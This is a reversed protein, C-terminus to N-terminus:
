RVPEGRVIPTVKVTEGADQSRDCRFTVRNDGRRLTPVTGGSGDGEVWTGLARHQTLNQPTDLIIEVCGWGVANSGNNATTVEFTKKGTPSGESSVEIEYELGDTQRDPRGLPGSGETYLNLPGPELLITNASDGYETLHPKADIFVSLPQDPYPNNFTWANESGDVKAVYHEPGYIIPLIEWAGDSIRDLVFEHGPVKLQERIGEPFYGNLKLEEWNRIRAFIERTRGNADLAAKTTELSMAAGYALAKCWAYEMERPRTADGALSHTFYGFWGFEFPQLDAISYASNAM